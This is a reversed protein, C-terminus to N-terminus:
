KPHCIMGAAAREKESSCLHWLSNRNQKGDPNDLQRSQNAVIQFALSRIADSALLHHPANRGLGPLRAQNHQLSM